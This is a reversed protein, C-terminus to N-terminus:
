PAHTGPATLDGGPSDIRLARTLSLRAGARDVDAEIGYSGTPDGPDFIVDFGPMLVMVGPAEPASAALGERYLVSGDPGRLRL